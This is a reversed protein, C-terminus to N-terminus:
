IGAIRLVVNGQQGEGYVVLPPEFGGGFTVEFNVDGTASRLRRRRLM